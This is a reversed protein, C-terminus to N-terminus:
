REDAHTLSVFLFIELHERPNQSKLLPGSKRIEVRSVISRLLANQEAATLAYLWATLFRHIQPIAQGIAATSGPKPVDAEIRRIEAETSEIKQRLAERRSVYEAVSYVGRELMEQAATLQRRAMSLADQAASIEEALNPAPPAPSVPAEGDYAPGWAKLGALLVSVAVDLYVSSNACAPKRCCLFVGRANPRRVMAYGCVGCKCLGALLNAISRPEVHAVSRRSLAIERVKQFDAESIIAEHQGKALIYHDSLSRRTEIGADTKQKKSERKLWQVYGAYVPQHLMNRVAGGDWERGSLTTAGMATLRKSIASAGLGQRLYMDYALRVIRAEEPIQRLTYGKQGKCKVVEYGFPRKGGVYHGERVSAARGAQMRRKIAKYERRAMFLSFEFYEEDMENGPDYTKAPTIIRTGSYKFAQAVMGQDITDGRALREVETCLVGEWKGEQVEQLLRRMMPRAAITDGSVIERYIAEPPVSLNLREALLTLTQQHRALTEGEGRAEAELDARSKRLYMCYPLFDSGKFPIFSLVTREM